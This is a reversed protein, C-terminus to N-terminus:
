YIYTYIYMEDSIYMYVDDGVHDGMFGRYINVEIFVIVFKIM